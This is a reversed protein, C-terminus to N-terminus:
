YTAVLGFEATGSIKGSGISVVTVTYTSWTLASAYSAVTDDVTSYTIGEVDAIGSVYTTLALTQDGNGATCRIYIRVRRKPTGYTYSLPINEVSCETVTVATM